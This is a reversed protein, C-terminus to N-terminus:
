VFSLIGVRQSENSIKSSYVKNQKDFQLQVHESRTTPSSKFNSYCLSPHASACQCFHVRVESTDLVHGLRQGPTSIHKHFAKPTNLAHEPRADTTASTVLTYLLFAAWVSATRIKDDQSM